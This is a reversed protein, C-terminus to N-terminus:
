KTGISYIETKAMDRLEQAKKELRDAEEYFVKTQMLKWGNRKVSEGSHISDFKEPIDKEVIYRDFGPNSENEIIRVIKGSVIRNGLMDTSIGMIEDGINFKSM